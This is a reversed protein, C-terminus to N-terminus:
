LIIRSCSWVHCRLKVYAYEQGRGAMPNGAAMTRSGRRRWGVGGVALRLERRSCGAAQFGLRNRVQGGGNEVTEFVGFCAQM